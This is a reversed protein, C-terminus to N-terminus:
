KGGIALVDHGYEINAGGMGYRVPAVQNLDVFTSSETKDFAGLERCLEEVASSSCLPNVWTIASGTDFQVSVTQGPTGLTIDITYIAGSLRPDLETELQRKATTKKTEVLVSGASAKLPFAVLGKQQTYSADAAAGDAMSSVSM